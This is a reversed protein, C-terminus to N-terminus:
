IHILSLNLLFLEVGREVALRTCASSILGTGGVFLVKM